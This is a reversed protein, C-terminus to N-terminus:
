YAVRVANGLEIGRPLLVKRDRGKETMPFFQSHKVYEPNTTQTVLYLYPEHPGLDSSIVLIGMLNISRLGKKGGSVKGLRSALRQNATVM